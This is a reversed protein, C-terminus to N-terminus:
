GPQPRDALLLAGALFNEGFAHLPINRHEDLWRFRSPGPSCACFRASCAANLCIASALPSSCSAVRPFLPPLSLRFCRSRAPSPGVTGRPPRAPRPRRGSGPSEPPSGAMRSYGAVLSGMAPPGPVESSQASAARYRQLGAERNTVPATRFTSPPQHTESPWTGVRGFGGGEKFGVVVVAAAHPHQVASARDEYSEAVSCV